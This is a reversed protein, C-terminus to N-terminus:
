LPELGLDVLEGPEEPGDVPLEVGGLLGVLNQRAAGAAINVDVLEKARAIERLLLSLVGIMGYVIPWPDEVGNGLGGISDQMDSVQAVVQQVLAGM